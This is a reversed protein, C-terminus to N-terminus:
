TCVSYATTSPRCSTTRWSLYQSLSVLLLKNRLTEFYRVNPPCLYYQHQL